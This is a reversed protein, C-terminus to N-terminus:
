RASVQAPEGVKELDGQIGPKRYLTEMSDLVSNIDNWVRILDGAEGAEASGFNLEERSILDLDRTAADLRSQIEEMWVAGLEAARAAVNLGETNIDMWTRLTEAQKRLSANDVTDAYQALRSRVNGASTVIDQLRQAFLTTEEDKIPMVGFQPVFSEQLTKM